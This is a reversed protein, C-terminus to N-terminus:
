RESQASCRAQRRRAAWCHGEHVHQLDHWNAWKFATISAANAAPSDAGTRCSNQAPEHVSTLRRTNYTPKGSRFGSFSTFARCWVCRISHIRLVFFVRRDLCPCSSPKARAVLSPARVAVIQSTATHGEQPTVTIYSHM